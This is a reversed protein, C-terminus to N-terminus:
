QQCSTRTHLKAKNSLALMASKVDARGYYTPSWMWTLFGCAYSQNLLATGYSRVETASMAWKGTSWGPIRSSGNGGDLVNMSVLLGLGKTKAVAIEAAVAKTPDGFRSAYQFWAADLASYTIPAKALWSPVVRVVTPMTPWFRKSYAAMAELTAQSIIKGGWREPRSPEDILYHALVTGDKIYSAFNVSRYRDVLAKWKTLSFTGDANKVWMDRGKCLKVVIRAGRAHALSLMSLMNSPDLMGGPMTGNYVSTLQEKAMDSVGFMIGALTSVTPSEQISSDVSATAASDVPLGTASDIPAAATSDGPTTNEATPGAGDGACSAGATIFLGAALARLLAGRVSLISPCMM